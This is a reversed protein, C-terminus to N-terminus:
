TILLLIRVRTQVALPLPLFVIPTLIIILTKKIALLQRWWVPAPPRPNSSSSTPKPQMSVVEGADQHAGGETMEETLLVFFM